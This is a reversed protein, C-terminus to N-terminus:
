RVGSSQTPPRMEGTNIEDLPVPNHVLEIWKSSPNGGDDASPRSTAEDIGSLIPVNDEIDQILCDLLFNKLGSKSLGRSGLQTKLDSVKLRKCNDKTLTSIVPPSIMDESTHTGDNREEEVYQEISEEDLVADFFPGLEGDYDYGADLVEEMDKRKGINNIEKRSEQVPVCILQENSEDLSQLQTGTVTM